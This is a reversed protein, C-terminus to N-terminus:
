ICEEQRKYVDLHTYSVPTNYHLKEFTVMGNSDSTATMTEYAPNDELTEPNVTRVVFTAGQLSKGDENVKQISVSDSGGSVTADSKKYQRKYVDLHTYSVADSTDSLDAGSEHKQM